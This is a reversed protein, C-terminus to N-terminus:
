MKDMKLVQLKDRVMIQIFYVGKPLNSKFLKSAHGEQKWEYHEMRKGFLNIVDASVSVGDEIGSLKINYHDSTPNPYLIAFKESAGNKTAITENGLPLKNEIGGTNIYFESLGSTEFEIYYGNGYPVLDSNKFNYFYYVPDIENGFMGDEEASSIKTVGLEYATSPKDYGEPANRSRECEEDTFFLRVKLTGNTLPSETSIKFNRDLYYQLEDKRQESDPNFYVNVTTEGIANDGTYKLSAVKDGNINFDTWDNTLLQSVLADSGQYINQSEYIHVDDISLGEATMSEDSRMIFRFQVSSRDAIDVLHVPISAVHWYNYTSDWKEEKNYWNTGELMTGLTKWEFGDESYEVSAGDYKVELDYAFSFSLMPDNTFASLDFCPSVLNSREFALYNDTLNTTWAKDGNAAGKLQYKQPLGWEWTSRQGDSYWHGNDTEFSELYPFNNIYINNTFKYNDLTDNARYNDSGANVWAKLEYKGALSLDTPPFSYTLVENGEISGVAFPGQIAGNNITYWAQINEAKNVDTNEINIVIGETKSLGCVNLGPHQINQIGIDNNAIHLAMDDFTYGGYSNIAIAPGSVEVDFRIQCSSSFQQGAAYLIKTLPIGLVKKYSGGNAENAYLDYIQIWEDLDSGRAWVKSAARKLTDANHNLYSFDFKINDSGNYNSMNLTAMLQNIILSGDNKRDITLSKNGNKNFDRLVFTRARGQIDETLFDFREIGDLGFSTGEYTSTNANEFDVKFTTNLDNTVLIPENPLQRITKSMTNNDLYPTDIDGIIGATINYTGVNFVNIPNAFNFVESSGPALVGNFDEIINGAGANYFLKFNSIESTGLNRVIVKVTENNTLATSTNQRGTQSLNIQEIVLDRAWPCQNGNANVFLSLCRRGVGGDALVAAASILEKGDPDLGDLIYTTDTTEAVEVMYFGSKKYIKYAVADIVPSWNLQANGRCLPVVKFNTPIPCITFRGSTDSEFGEKSVMLRAQGTRVQAMDFRITRLSDEKNALLEWNQGDDYSINIDFPKGNNYPCEWQFYEFEGPIYKEGGFPGNILIKKSETRYALAYSQEGQISRGKVRIKYDGAKPEIWSIQELNNLSDVGRVAPLAAQSPNPDLTWPLITGEPGILELDLDNILQDVVLANGSPDVWCLTVVAKAANPPVHFTIENLGDQSIKDLTHQGSLAERAAKAINVKGYGNSFEPGETLLDDATNTLIAKLLDSKPYTGGHTKKYAEQMAAIASTISPASMSTGATTYYNNLDGASTTNTGQSVIEPKIRGDDTPGQCSYETVPTGERRWISGVTIGNKSCQPGSLVSNFALPVGECILAGSNGSAWVHILDPFHVTSEDVEQAFLDYEGMRTCDITKEITAYSNNTVRINYDRYFLEANSIIDFADANVITAKNLFGRHKDQVNGAGIMTGATHSAHSGENFRTFNIVRDNLDEHDFAGSDGHGIVVGEGNLGLGGSEISANAGQVAELSRKYFNLFTYNRPCLQISQVVDKETIAECTILDTDAIIYTKNDFSRSEVVKVNSFLTAISEENHIGYLCLKVRMKSKYGSDLVESGIKYKGPIEFISNIHPSSILKELCESAIQVVYTRKDLRDMLHIECKLEGALASILTRDAIQITIILDKTIGKALQYGSKAPPIYTGNKFLVPQNVQGILPLPLIFCLLTYIKYFKRM